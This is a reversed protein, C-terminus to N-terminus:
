RGRGAAGIRRGSGGIFSQERCSEIIKQETDSVRNLEQILPRMSQRIGNSFDPDPVSIGNDRLCQAFALINDQLEIQDEQSPPQAFTAGSILPICAEFAERTKANGPQFGSAQVMSQRLATLDITGDANLVPDPIDFGQDRMCSTFRTVIEEDTLEPESKTTDSTSQISTDVEPASAEVSKVPGDNTRPKDIQAVGASSQDSSLCGFAGLLSLFFLIGIIARKVFRM